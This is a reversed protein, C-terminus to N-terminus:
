ALGEKEAFWEQIVLTGEDGAVELENDEHLVSKPIWKKGDGPIRVLIAKDTEHEVLCGPVEFGESM